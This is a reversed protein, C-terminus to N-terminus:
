PSLTKKKYCQNKVMEMIEKTKGLYTLPNTLDILDKHNIRDMVENSKLCVDEFKIKEHYAKTALKGMLDHAEKRAMPKETFRADTLYTLVRNATVFDSRRVREISREKNLGLHYVANSLRRIVHDGFKFMDELNIRDSASASLDRGYNFRCSSLACSMVGRMYNTFSEVQEEAIPNGGKADKHPMSSSGKRKKPNTDIFVSWDESKGMIIYNALNGLTESTRALGYVIDAIFERGPIQANATMHGIGLKKCYESQLKIGDVKAVSSQHHNGTADAWKGKISHNYFFSLVDLDSQLMEVYFMFARGALSPLADYLHTTDMFPTQFENSLAKEITIDRLNEVSDVIIEISTKLQLAKTTETSDASTRYEGVHTRGRELKEDLATTVAIVDHGTKEELKRIRVPDIIGIKAKSSIERADEKPVIEPYRDSLTTVATSQADLIGQFTVEPGWTVVMNGTGYRGAALTAPDPEYHAPFRPKPKTHGLEM